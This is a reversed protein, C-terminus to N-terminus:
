GAPPQLVALAYEPPTSPGPTAPVYARLCLGAILKVNTEPLLWHALMWGSAFKSGPTFTAKTTGFRQLSMCSQEAACPSAKRRANRGLTKAAGSHACVSRTTENSSPEVFTFPPPLTKVITARWPSEPTM